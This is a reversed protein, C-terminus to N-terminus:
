CRRRPQHGAFARRRSAPAPSRRWCASATTASPSRTPSTPARGPIATPPRSSACVADLREITLPELRAEVPQPLASMRDRATHHPPRRAKIAAREETTQAVKDRVYLPWAQAAPVTRGAALLAPAPRLVPPPRPAGRPARGRGAPTRRLRRLCQRGAGLRRAGRAIRAGYLLPGRRRRRARRPAMPRSTTARPTSRRWARMSCRWRASRASPMARRRPWPWCPTSRCCRCARASRWARRWRAPPACGPSRARAAASPSPMSSRAARPRGLGAAAPDAPDAHGLVPRRGRGRADLRARRPAGRDVAARHQHRLGVCRVDRRGGAVAAVAPVPRRRAPAPKQVGFLIGATVLLLGAVANWYLPEDLLAGRGAGVPRAGAGHDHHHAGPRLAPGDEHLHHGVGRGLRHGPVADFALEGQASGIRSAVQLRRGGAPQLGARLTLLAFVTIAITTRCPMSARRRVVISCHAWTTLGRGPVAPRRELGRGRLCAAPQAQGGAPRGRRDAGARARAAAHHPRPVLAALLTTWRLAPRRAAAGLCPQGARLLLRLLRVPM